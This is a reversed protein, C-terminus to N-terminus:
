SPSSDWYALLATCCMLGMSLHLYRRCYFCFFIIKYFLNYHKFQVQFLFPQLGLGMVSTTLSFVKLSRVQRTMPGDYILHPEAPAELPEENIVLTDKAHRQESLLRTSSVLQTFGKNNTSLIQLSM